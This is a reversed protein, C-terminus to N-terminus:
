WSRRAGMHVIRDRTMRQQVMAKLQEELEAYQSWFGLAKQTEGADALLSFLMYFEIACNFDPPFPFTGSPVFDVDGLSIHPVLSAYYVKLNSYDDGPVPYAGLHWMGRMFWWRSLNANKEWGRTLRLDLERIDTPDLWRNTSMNWVAKVRLFEPPLIGRLDTYLAWKRRKVVASLEYFETADAIEDLADNYADVLDQDTYRVSEMDRLRERVSEIVQAPVAM